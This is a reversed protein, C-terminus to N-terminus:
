YDLSSIVKGERFHRLNLLPSYLDLRSSKCAVIKDVGFICYSLLLCARCLTKKLKCFLHTASVEVVIEFETGRIRSNGEIEFLLTVGLDPDIFRYNFM